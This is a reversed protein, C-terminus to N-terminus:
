KKQTVWVEGMDRDLKHNKPVDQYIKIATLEGGIAPEFPVILNNEFLLLGRWYGRRIDLLTLEETSGQDTVMFMRRGVEFNRSGSIIRSTKKKDPSFESIMSSAVDEIKADDGLLEGLDRAFERLAPQDTETM